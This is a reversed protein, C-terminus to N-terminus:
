PVLRALTDQLDASPPSPLVFTDTRKRANRPRPWPAAAKIRESTTDNLLRSRQSSLSPSIACPREVEERFLEERIQVIKQECHDPLRLMIQHMTEEQGAREKLMGYMIALPIGFALALIWYVIGHKM